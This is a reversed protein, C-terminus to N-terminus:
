PWSGNVLENPPRNPHTGIILAKDGNRRGTRVSVNSFSTFASEALSVFATPRMVYTQIGNALATWSVVQMPNNTLWSRDNKSSKMKCHLIVKVHLFEIRMKDALFHCRHANM